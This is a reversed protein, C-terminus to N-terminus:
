LGGFKRIRGSYDEIAELLHKKRFDPWLVDTVWIESYAIQWIMFNSVRLEGATRILLDPDPMGATYLHDSILKEDITDSKANNKVISKLADTLEARGGYSLMINLNLKSNNKTREEASGIKEQLKEPLMSLRGMFRVKIKNKDLEDVEKEITSSLLRMLFNIEEKPRKWNETSFAYVTLYKVGLEICAKVAERLSIAGRRHGEIRPLKRKQAWRGNGDMIIAIHKPIQLDGTQAKNPIQSKIM